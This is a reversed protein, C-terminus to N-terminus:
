SRVFDATAATEPARAATAPLRLSGCPFSEIETGKRSAGITADARAGRAELCGRSANSSSTESSSARKASDPTSRATRM